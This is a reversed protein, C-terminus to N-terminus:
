SDFIHNTPGTMKTDAYKRDAAIQTFRCCVQLRTNLWRHSVSPTKGLNPKCRVSFVLARLQFSEFSTFRESPLRQYM